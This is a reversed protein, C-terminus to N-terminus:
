LQWRVFVRIYANPGWQLEPDLSGLQGLSSCLLGSTGPSSSARARMFILLCEDAKYRIVEQLSFQGEYLPHSPGYQFELSVLELANNSHVRGGNRM